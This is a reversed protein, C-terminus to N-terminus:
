VEIDLDPVRTHWKPPFRVPEPATSAPVYRQKIRHRSTGGSIEPHAVRAYKDVECFLNQCDILQLPRGELWAFKLRLTQLFEQQRDAMLAILQEEVGVAGLGFVKRLGSHAGPGAVVFDMEDFDLVESYNLDILYQFALFDGLGPYGRLVEFAERMTAARQLKAVVGDLLMRELLALHNRYKREFGLRPSPMVYAASYLAEGDGALRGLVKAYREADFGRWSLEGLADSLAEWTSIKNFIKFLLVRFAVEEAAQDGAYIVHRILYQSVRDTARYCNTFRHERIVPDSSWPGPLGAQRRLYTAQREAAFRWYTEFVPSVLLVRDAVRVYRPLEGGLESPTPVRPANQLVLSM